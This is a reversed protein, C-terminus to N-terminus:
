AGPGASRVGEPAQPRVMCPCCVRCRVSSTSSTTRMQYLLIPPISMHPVGGRKQKQRREKEKTKTKSLLSPVPTQCMCIGSTRVVEYTWHLITSPQTHGTYYYCIGHINGATGCWWKPPSRLAACRRDKAFRVDTKQLIAVMMEADPCTIHHTIGHSDQNGHDICSTVHLAVHM